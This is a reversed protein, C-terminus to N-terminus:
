TVLRNRSLCWLMQAAPKACETTRLTTKQGLCAYSTGWYPAKFDRGLGPLVPVDKMCTNAHLMMNFSFLSFSEHSEPSSGPTPNDLMKAGLQFWLGHLKGATESGKAANQAQPGVQWSAKVQAPGHIMLWGPPLNGIAQTRRHLKALLPAPTRHASYWNQDMNLKAM